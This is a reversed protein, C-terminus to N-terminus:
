QKRLVEEQAIESLKESNLISIKKRGIDILGEDRFHGLTNTVTERYVGIMDALDQHSLGRIEHVGQSSLSVLLSAVRAPIGKFASDGLREQSDHLRHGIEELMRLGVQPKLLLLREVDARGMVCILCDEAAEAFFNRMGQGFAPMEGFFTMPEVTQIIFKRGESSLRYIHILGIKLLFLTEGTEGPSYILKGKHATTMVISKDVMALEEKSLDRFIRMASLYAIKSIAGKGSQTVSTERSLDVAEGAASGARGSLLKSFGRFFGTGM